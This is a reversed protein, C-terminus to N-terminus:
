LEQTLVNLDFDEVEVQPTEKVPEEKKPEDLETQGHELNEVDEMVRSIKFRFIHGIKIYSTKKIFGQRVWARITNSNVSFLKAVDETPVYPELEQSDSM